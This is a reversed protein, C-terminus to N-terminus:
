FALGPGSVFLYGGPILFAAALWGGHRSPQLAPGEAKVFRRDGFWAMM